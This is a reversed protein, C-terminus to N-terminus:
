KRTVAFCRSGVLRTRLSSSPIRTRGTQETPNMPARNNSNRHTEAVITVVTTQTTTVAVDEEADVVADAVEEEDEKVVAVKVELTLIAAKKWWAMVSTHELLTHYLDELALTTPLEVLVV